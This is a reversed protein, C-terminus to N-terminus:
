YESYGVLILFFPLIRHVVQVRVFSDVFPGVTWRVGHATHRDAKLM